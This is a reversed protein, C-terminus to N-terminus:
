TKQPIDTGPLPSDIFVCGMAEAKAQWESFGFCLTDPSHCDSSLLFRAGKGALWQLIIPAPYPVTRWGRSIAGTNLEFPLGSLLLKEAANQWASTYRPDAEDFLPEKENFKAILDFHGIVSCGPIESVRSVTDYYAEVLSYIDGGFHRDAAACLLAKSEDVPLYEGEAILYHVSGIVYDYGATSADSYLDQEVGCFISLGESYEDQLARVEDRYAETGSPSMCWSEDFATHSHGSFGMRNLGAAVAADAMERPLAKGDCYRTHVHWDAKL